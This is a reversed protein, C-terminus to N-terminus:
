NIELQILQCFSTIKYKLSVILNFNRIKISSFVDSLNIIFDFDDVFQMFVRILGIKDTM